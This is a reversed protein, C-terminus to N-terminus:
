CACGANLQAARVIEDDSIEEAGAVTARIHAIRDPTLRRAPSFVIPPVEAAAALTKPKLVAAPRCIVPATGCVFNDDPVEEAGIGAARVQGVGNAHEDVAPAVRDAAGGLAVRIDEAEVCRRSKFMSPLSSTSPFKKPVLALPSLRPLETPTSILLPLLVIPPVARPSGFTNPKLVDEPRSISPGFVVALMTSPLKKPVLALLALRPLLSPIVSGRCCRCCLRRSQCVASGVQDSEAGSVADLDGPGACVSDDHDTVKDPGIRGASIQAIGDAHAEFEPGVGDATGRGEGRVDEAEISM